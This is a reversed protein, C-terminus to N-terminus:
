QLPTAGGLGSDGGVALGRPVTTTECSLGQHQLSSLFLDLGRRRDSMILYVEQLGRSGVSAAAM